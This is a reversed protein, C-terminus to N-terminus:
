TQVVKELGDCLRSVTELYSRDAAAMSSPAPLRPLRGDAVMKARAHVAALCEVALRAHAAEYSEAM